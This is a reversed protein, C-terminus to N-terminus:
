IYRQQNSNVNFGLNKFYKCKWIILCMKQYKWRKVENSSYIGEFEMFDSLINLSIVLRKLNDDTAAKKCLLKKM